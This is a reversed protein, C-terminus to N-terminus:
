QFLTLFFSPISSGKFIYKAGFYNFEMGTLSSASPLYAESLMLGISTFHNIYAGNGMKTAIEKHTHQDGGLYRWGGAFTFSFSCIELFKIADDKEKAKLFQLTRKSYTGPASVEGALIKAWLTQM